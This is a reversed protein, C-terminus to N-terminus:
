GIKRYAITSKGSVRVELRAQFPGVRRQGDVVTKIKGDESFTVVASPISLRESTAMCRFRGFRRQRVPAGVGSCDAADIALGIRVKALAALSSRVVKDLVYEAAENAAPSQHPEERLGIALGRYYASSARLERILAARVAPALRVAADRTVIQEAKRETWAWRTGHAVAISTFALFIGTVLIARFVTSHGLAALARRRRIRRLLRVAASFQTGLETPQEERARAARQAQQARQLREANRLRAIEYNTWPHTDMSGGEAKSHEHM